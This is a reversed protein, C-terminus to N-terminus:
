IFRLGIFNKDPWAFLLSSSARTFARVFSLCCRGDFHTIKSIPHQYSASLICSSQYISIFWKLHHVSLSRLLSQSATWWFRCCFTTQWIKALVHIFASRHSYMFASAICRAISQRPLPRGGIRGSDLFVFRGHASFQFPDIYKRLKGRGKAFLDLESPKMFEFSNAHIVPVTETFPRSDGIPQSSDHGFNGVMSPFSLPNYLPLSDVRSAYRSHYIM